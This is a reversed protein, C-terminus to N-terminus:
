LLLDMGELKERHQKGSSIIYIRTTDISSHGLIDSLTAIDKESNYFTRAFLHRLNHPFVKKESVGAKICLKKMERWVNSRDVPKKNRTIFICGDTIGNRKAYDLLRQCLDSVLFISRTKGKCCVTAEGCLAAEVTIYELESIRMGTTCITQIILCLRENGKEKAANALRKYESRSLETEESCFLKRQIKFLKVCYEGKEMFSLLSNLACLMSNAGARKYNACLFSKYQLVVSRGIERGDLFEIFREADRVYKEITSTSKENECLHDRYRKLLNEM